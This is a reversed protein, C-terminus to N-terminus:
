VPRRLEVVKGIITVPLEEIEKNTYFKPSYVSVNYGILTIGADSKKIQKVTAEEGDILVVAIDGSEVDSQVKIIITDGEYLKPEMSAGKVKLAFFEGTAALKPSIEEYDLIEQIASIPIGAIVHGLVPIRNNIHTNFNINSTDGENAAQFSYNSHNTPPFLDNISIELASAIKFLLDQEPENTCNEYGSITNHKVGIKAGLEKQTLGRLKRYERIKKATYSKIDM